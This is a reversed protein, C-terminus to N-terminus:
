ASEPLKLLGNAHAHRRERWAQQEAASANNGPWLLRERGPLWYRYSDLTRGNGDRRILGQQKARKLWRSLTSRDPPGQEENHWRELIERLSLKDRAHDLIYHIEDWTKVLPTGAADTGALYDAGDASLEVILHRPTEEYRSYGCIRRRRDRSRARRCCSMEMVIDAIAPLAIT